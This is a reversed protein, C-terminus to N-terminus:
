VESFQKNSDSKKYYDLVDVDYRSYIRFTNFPFCCVERGKDFRKEAIKEYKVQSKDELDELWQLRRKIFVKDGSKPRILTMWDSQSARKPLNLCICHTKPELCNKCRKIHHHDVVHHKSSSSEDSYKHGYRNKLFTDSNKRHTRLLNTISKRKFGGARLYFDAADHEGQDSSSSSSDRFKTQMRMDLKKDKSEGAKPSVLNRVLHSQQYGEPRINLRYREMTQEVSSRRRLNVSKEKNKKKGNNKRRKEGFTLLKPLQTAAKKTDNQLGSPGPEPEKEEDKKM